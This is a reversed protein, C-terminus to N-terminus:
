CPKGTSTWPPRPALRARCTPPARPVLMRRRASGRRDGTPPRARRGPRGRPAGRAVPQRLARRDVRELLGEGGGAVRGVGHGEGRAGRAEVGGRGHGAHAVAVLHDRARDRERRAGVAGGVEVGRRGEGVDLGGGPVDAGSVTAAATVGRVRATTGTCKAPSGAGTASIRAATPGSTVIMSSAACAAPARVGSPGTPAQRWASMATKEKWGTLVIVHPSPPITVVRSAPSRSRRSSNRVWPM